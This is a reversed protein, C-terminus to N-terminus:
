PCLRPAARQCSAHHSFLPPLPPSPQPDPGFRRSSVPATRSSCRIPTYRSTSELCLTSSHRPDVTVRPRHRLLVAAVPRIRRGHTSFFVSVCVNRTGFPPGPLPLPPTPPSNPYPVFFAFLEATIRTGGRRAEWHPGPSPGQKSAVRSVPAGCGEPDSRRMVEREEARADRTSRM